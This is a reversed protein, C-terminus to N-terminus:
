YREWHFKGSEDVKDIAKMVYYIPKPGDLEDGERLRRWIGLNLGFEDKSDCHAHLIFSDIEPIQMIIKYAKGYACAQLVESEPTWHSNFGQESLIIRRRKGEFLNEERYLFDRLVGLNKFTVRYTDESDTATKDNWFDPFELNEPYSHFAVNWGIEGEEHGLAVLEELVYKGGTYRLPKEMDQSGTWFHDLSLYIRVNRYIESASQWALRLATTYERVFAHVDKEGANSWIWHSNVENSIIMGYARGHESDPDCYRSALFAIFACYHRAGVDTMVNFSSLLGGGNQRDDVYDPHLLVTKMDEPIETRWRLSCLLILTVLIGNESMRRISNDIYNVMAEDFYYEEGDHVFSICGEPGKRMLDSICVNYASHRVGISVADDIMWDVVQLGKKNEVVPYPYDFVSEGNGDVYRVKEGCRYKLYLGDRGTLFRPLVACGEKDTHLEVTKLSIEEGMAPSLLELQVDTDSSDFLCRIEDKAATVRILKMIGGDIRDRYSETETSDM